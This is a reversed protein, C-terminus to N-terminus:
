TDKRNKGLQGLKMKKHFKKVVAVIDKITVEGGAESLIQDIREETTLPKPPISKKPPM